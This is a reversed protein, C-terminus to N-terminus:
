ASCVFVPVRSKGRKRRGLARKGQKETVKQHRCEQLSAPCSVYKRIDIHLARCGLLATRRGVSTERWERTRAIIKASFGKQDEAQRQGNIQAAKEAPIMMM